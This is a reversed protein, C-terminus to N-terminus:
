LWDSQEVITVKGCLTQQEKKRSYMRMCYCQFGEPLKVAYLKNNKRGVICGCSIVSFDEQPEQM